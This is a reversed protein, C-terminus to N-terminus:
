FWKKKKFYYIMTGTIVIMVGWLIPYSWKYGFEPMFKFNMGYLGVIFTLPIFITSIITLVKIIENLKYSTSTYFLEMLDTVMERCTESLDIAEKIHSYVDNMYPLVSSSIFKSPKNILVSRSEKFPIIAKSVLMIDSKIKRIQILLENSADKILKEELIDIREELGYLIEFYSDTISDLLCYLLYDATSRRIHSKSTNLLKRVEDFVDGDFDGISIVYNDGLLFTIGEAVVEGNNKYLMTAIVFLFDEYDELKPRHSKESISELVVPHINFSEALQDCLNKDCASDIDIWRISGELIASLSDLSSVNYQSITEFNYDTVTINSKKIENANM